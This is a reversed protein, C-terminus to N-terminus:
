LNPRDRDNDYFTVVADKEREAAYQRLSAVLEDRAAVPELACRRYGRTTTKWFLLTDDKGLVEVREIGGEFYELEAGIILGAGIVNRLYLLESAADDARAALELSEDRPAWFALLDEVSTQQPAWRTTVVLPWRESVGREHGEVFGSMGWDPRLSAFKLNQLLRWAEDVGPLREIWVGVADDRLLTVLGCIAAAEKGPLAPPAEALTFYGQDDNAHSGESTLVRSCLLLDADGAEQPPNRLDAVVFEANDVRLVDM